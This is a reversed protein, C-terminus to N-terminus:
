DKQVKDNKEGDEFIGGGVSTQGGVVLYGSKLDDICNELLSRVFTCQTQNNKLTQSFHIEVSCISKEGKSYALLNNFLLGNSAGGTFRDIATRTRLVESVSDNKFSSEKFYLNSVQKEEGVVYGFLYNIIKEVYLKSDSSCEPFILMLQSDDLQSLIRRMHNRFIGAWSTGPIVVEKKGNKLPVADIRGDNKGVGHSYDRIFLFSKLRLEASTVFSDNINPISLSDDSRFCNISWNWNIYEDLDSPLKLLRSEIGVERNKKLLKFYGYGRSTKGGIRIEGKYFGVILKEVIRKVESVEGDEIKFELRFSFEAGLEVIEFDFKGEPSAIKNELRVSDRIRTTSVSKELLQSDYFIVRSQRALSSEKNQKAQGFYKDILNTLKPDSELYSRCVGALSTGPIFPKGLHNRLLDKDSYTDNGNGIMFPSEAKLIGMFLYLNKSM